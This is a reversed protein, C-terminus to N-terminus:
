SPEQRPTPCHGVYIAASASEGSAFYRIIDSRRVIGIFSDFDDVVPVFNQEAALCLLEEMSTTVPVAKARDTHMICSLKTEHLEEATHPRDALYRLFDGESVVGVYKGERDLVALASFGSELLKALGKRLSYDNFLYTVMSKPKLFFALNM